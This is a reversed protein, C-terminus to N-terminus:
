YFAQAVNIISELDRSIRLERKLIPDQDETPRMATTATKTTTVTGNTTRPHHSGSINGNKSDSKTSEKQGGGRASNKKKKEAMWMCQWCEGAVVSGGWEDSAIIAVPRGDNPCTRSESVGAAELLRRLRDREERLRKTVDDTREEIDPSGDENLEVFYSNGQNM